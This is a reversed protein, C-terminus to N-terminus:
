AAEQKTLEEKRLEYIKQAEAQEPTDRLAKYAEGFANKLVDMDQTEMAIDTFHSLDVEAKTRGDNLWDMLKKGTLENLQTVEANSFLGTRDKSAMATHTEHNLDLVTTFEYEVGDRQESKMGLKDVGKKGNGKDVQATETKSRMTAIIHLDSRLIADLFANHRPTIESWASWTNGRYKAKALGDLLELCGGSGSWEHTISDIILNDYGAEQAAGIAEIFREPTFPPDLELVDFNFRDSYLSASGKETDIVATNGGLGKAIELAGYTKGSGSPGTLALRLKAKKRLAKAFKM